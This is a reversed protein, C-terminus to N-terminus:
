EEYVLNLMDEIWTIETYKKDKECLEAHRAEFIEEAFLMKGRRNIYPSDIPTSYSGGWIYISILHNFGIIRDSINKKILLHGKCAALLFDEKSILYDMRKRPEPKSISGIQNWFSIAQQKTFKINWVAVKEITAIKKSRNKAM